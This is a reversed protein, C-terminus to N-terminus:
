LKEWNSKKAPDGGIFRYGRVVHGATYTNLANHFDGITPRKGTYGKLTGNQETYRAMKTRQEVASQMQTYLKRLRAANEKPPLAPNYARKILAAGEKETFQAGLIIRLNRQVVESVLESADTAEPAFISSITPGLENLMGVLPGTLSEGGELRALVNGIQAVQGAMDAGGGQTWTLYDKAYAKDIEKELETQPKGDPGVQINTGSKLIKLAEASTKGQDILFQYNDQFATLKKDSAKGSNGSDVKGESSIQHPVSPDYGRKMVETIPLQSWTVSPKKVAQEMEFKSLTQYDDRAQEFTISGNQLQNGIEAYKGGKAIMMKATRNIQNKTKTDALDQAAKADRRKILSEKQGQIGAMISATNPNGSMSAFGSALNLLNEKDGLYTGVKSGFNDLLGM